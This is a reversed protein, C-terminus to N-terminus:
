KWFRRTSSRRPGPDVAFRSPPQVATSREPPAPRLEKPLRFSRSIGPPDPDPDTLTSPTSWLLADRELSRRGALASIESVPRVKGGWSGFWPENGRHSGYQAACLAAMSLAVVVDIKHTQKAKVIHWGRVGEKAIARSMALRIDADPYVVISNSKILEYLNQSTETLGPVSQAYEWMPIFDARLRQASAVMQYPDFAVLKLSFREKLDRVTREITAEFNLPQDPSPQYIKHWVLVAKGIHRDWTVVVIATSDHKVSADIGVWVPLTPDITLPRWDPDVCRDFWDMDIFSSETSTWENRIMRSFQNPRLSARMQSLWEPTQWPAVPEHHWAMLMGDGTRLGPGVEPLAMGRKYLEELLVSEDMFGAYTVTLRCSIARTPVPIMEDFLRRGRESVFGWLEDFVAINQSGGAAGAFDSAIARITGGITTFTIKDASIKAQRKLWPSCEVIKRAAEFVRGVSQDLDNACFTAEPYRAGYLLVTCLAHMAAFATKGSKKPAAYVQEPYLLKGDEGTLFAFSLFAREADLLRYAKGTEPDVLAEEIFEWPKARWREMTASDLADTM